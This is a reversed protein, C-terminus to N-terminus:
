DVRQLPLLFPSCDRVYAVLLLVSDLNKSEPNKQEPNQYIIVQVINISNNRCIIDHLFHLLVMELAFFGLKFWVKPINTEKCKKM